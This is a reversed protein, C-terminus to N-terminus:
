QRNECDKPRHWSHTSSLGQAPHVPAVFPVRTLFFVGPTPADFVALTPLRPATAADVVVATLCGPSTRSRSAQAQLVHVVEGLSPAAGTAQTARTARTRALVALPSLQRARLRPPKM